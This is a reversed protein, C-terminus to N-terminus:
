WRDLDSSLKEAVESDCSWVIQYLRAIQLWMYDPAHRSHPMELLQVICSSIYLNKAPLVTEEKFLLVYDAVYGQTKLVICLGQHLYSKLFQELLEQQKKAAENQSSKKEFYRQMGYQLIDLCVQNLSQKEAQAIKKLKSHMEADMRIVFRGSDNGMM